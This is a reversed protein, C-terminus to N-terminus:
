LDGIQQLFNLEDKNGEHVWIAIRYTSQKLIACRLCGANIENSLQVHKTMKTALFTTMSKTSITTM